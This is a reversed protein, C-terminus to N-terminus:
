RPNSKSARISGTKKRFRRESIKWSNERIVDRAASSFYLKRRHAPKNILSGCTVRLADVGRLDNRGTVGRVRCGHGGRLATAWVSHCAGLASIGSRRVQSVAEAGGWIMAGDVAQAM